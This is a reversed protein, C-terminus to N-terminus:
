NVHQKVGEELNNIFINFLCSWVTIGASSWWVGGVLKICQWKENGKMQVWGAMKLDLRCYEM